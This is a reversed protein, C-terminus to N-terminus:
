VRVSLGSAPCYGCALWYPGFPPLVAWLEPPTSAGDTTTGPPITIVEGASTTYEIASVTVFTHGDVTEVVAVDRAFGM